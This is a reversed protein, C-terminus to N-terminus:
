ATEVRYHHYGNYDTYIEREESISEPFSQHHIDADDQHECSEVQPEEHTRSRWSTAM